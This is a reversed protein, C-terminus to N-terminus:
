SASANTPRAAAPHVRRRYVEDDVYAILFLTKAVRGLEGAANGLTSPRGRVSARSARSRGATRRATWGSSGRGLDALRPSVQYGLLWFLGLVMDSYGAADTVIEPGPEDAAGPARRARVALRPAHGARRGPSALLNTARFNFYTVGRAVSHYKPNPGANLTCVPVVFRLGDAFAVEGGGGTQALPITAQYDVLWTNAATLAKARVYNQLGRSLRHM